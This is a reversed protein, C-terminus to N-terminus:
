ILNLEKAIDTLVLTLIATAREEQETLKKQATQDDHYLYQTDWPPLAACVFLPTLFSNCPAVDLVWGPACDSVLWSHEQWRVATALIVPLGFSGFRRELHLEPFARVYAEAFVHCNLIETPLSFEGQAIKVFLVESIRVVLVRLFFFREVDAIGEETQVAITYKV